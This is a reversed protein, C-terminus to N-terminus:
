ELWKDVERDIEREAERNIWLPNRAPVDAPGPPMDGTGGLFQIPGYLKNTGVGAKSRGSFAQMSSWLQNSRRLMPHGAGYGKRKRQKQTSEELPPWPGDPGREREWNQRVGEMLTEALAAMLPRNNKARAAIRKMGSLADSIDTTILKRQPM